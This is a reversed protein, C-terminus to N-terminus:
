AGFVDNWIQEYEPTAAGSLGCSTVVGDVASVLYRQGEVFDIGDLAATFGAPVALDVVDTDGGRYWRDVEIRVTSGTDASTISTVTGGFAVPVAALTAPDFVMCMQTLPDAPTLSLETATVAGGGPQLAVIAITAAAATAIAGLGFWRRRGTPRIASVTAPATREPAADAAHTDHADLPTSMIAELLTRARDSHIPDTPVDRDPLLAALRDRLQDDNM